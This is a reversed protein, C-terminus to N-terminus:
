QDHQLMAEGKDLFAPGWPRHDLTPWDEFIWEITAITRVAIYLDIQRAFGEPLTRAEAYGELLADRLRPYAVAPKPRGPLPHKLYQLAAAADLAHHGFGCENFDIAGARDGHQLVNWLHLDGHLFGWNAANRPTDRLETQLAAAARAVAERLRGPLRRGVAIRGESWAALDPVYALRDTTVRTQAAGGNTSAHLRAIFRGLRRMPVEGLGAELIRGPLWQLMLVARAPAGDITEIGFFRGRTDPVPGPVHLGSEALAALWRVETEVAAIGDTLPVIRLALDRHLGASPGDGSVRYVECGLHAVRRWRAGSLGWAALLRAVREHDIRRAPRHSRGGAVSV